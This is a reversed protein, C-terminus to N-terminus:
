VHRGPALGQGADAPGDRRQLCDPSDFTLTQYRTGSALHATNPSINWVLTEPLYDIKDKLADFSQHLSAAREAETGYLTEYSRSFGEPQRRYIQGGDRRGEDVVTPRLGAEVLAQAARVGAPGTGIIVVRPAM